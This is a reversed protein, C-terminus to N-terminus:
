LAPSSTPAGRGLGAWWSARDLSLASSLLRNEAEGQRLAAPLDHPQSNQWWTSLGARQPRRHWTTRGVVSVRLSRPSLCHWATIESTREFDGPIPSCVACSGGSVSSCMPGQGYNSSYHNVFFNEEPLQTLNNYLDPLPLPARTWPSASRRQPLPSTAGEGRLGM